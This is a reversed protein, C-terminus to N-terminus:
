VKVIGCFDLLDKCFNGNQKKNLLDNVKKREEKFEDKGDSVNSIFRTLDTFGDIIMGPMYEKPNEFVFGRNASYSEIDSVSFAVPRNLLLYDMYVSSYDSILADAQALLSNVSYGKDAFEKQNMMVINSFNVKFDVDDQLPHLKIFLLIKKEALYDNLMKFDSINLFQIPNSCDSNHAKFSKSVRYTPLWAILKEDSKKLNYNNFNFLEDNRPMGGIYVNDCNFAQMMIPAFLDSTALVYTFYRDSIWGKRELNGIKKLPMGHWMHVVIQKNTPKIPLKGFTYFVYRCKTYVFLSRFLSIFKIRNQKSKQRDKKETAVYIKYKENYNNKVLYEYLAKSNDRFDLNSYILISNHKKTVSNFFMFTLYIIKSLVKKCISM